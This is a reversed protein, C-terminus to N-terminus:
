LRWNDVLSARRHADDLDVQSISLYHRAMVRSSHGLLEQLTFIDGGNKLFQIAFTHQFRYPHCGNIGAKSGIRKLIKAIENRDLPKGDITPLLPAHPQIPDKQSAIYAWTSKQTM